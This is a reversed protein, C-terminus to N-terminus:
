PQLFPRFACFLCIFLFLRFAFAHSIIDDSFPSFAKRLTPSCLGSTKTGMRDSGIQAIKIVAKIAPAGTTIRISRPFMKIPMKAPITVSIGALSIATVPDIPQRHPQNRRSQRFPIGPLFESSAAVMTTIGASRVLTSITSLQQVTLFRNHAVLVFINKRQNSIEFVPFHSPASSSFQFHQHCFSNAPEIFIRVSPSRKKIKM